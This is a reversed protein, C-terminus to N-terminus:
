ISFLRNWDFEKYPSFDEGLDMKLINKAEAMERDFQEVQSQMGNIKKFLWNMRLTVEKSVRDTLLFKSLEALEQECKQIGGVAADHLQKATLFRMSAALPKDALLRQFATRYVPRNPKIYYPRGNKHVLQVIEAAEMAQLPAEDGNFLPSFVISDYSVQFHHM